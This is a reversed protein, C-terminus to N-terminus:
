CNACPGYDACVNDLARIITEFEANREQQCKVNAGQMLVDVERYLKTYLTDCDNKCADLAAQSVVKSYCIESRCTPNIDILAFEINAAEDIESMDTVAVWDSGSTSPPANTSARLAKYVNGSDYVADDTVYSTGSDWVSVGYMPFVHWGDMSSEAAWKAVTFPDNTEPLVTLATDAGDNNKKFGTVYVALDARDPNPAGYVTEDILSFNECDANISFITLKFELAM